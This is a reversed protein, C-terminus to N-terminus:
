KTLTHTSVYVCVTQQINFVLGAWRGVGGCCVVFWVIVVHQEEDDEGDEGEGGKGGVRGEIVVILIEVFLCLVRRHAVHGAVRVAPQERFPTRPIPAVTPLVPTILVNASAVPVVAIVPLAVPRRALAGLALPAHGPAKPRVTHDLQDDLLAVSRAVPLPLRHPHM